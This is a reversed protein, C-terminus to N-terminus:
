LKPLTVFQRNKGLAFGDKTWQVAGVLNAIECELMAEGGETVRLNRPQVRFYQQQTASVIWVGLVLVAIFFFFCIFFKENCNLPRM